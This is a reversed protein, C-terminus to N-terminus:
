WRLPFVLPFAVRGLEFVLFVFPLTERGVLRFVFLLTFRGLLVLLVLVVAEGRPPRPLELEVFTWFRLTLLPLLENVGLRPPPFEREVPVIFLPPPLERAPPAAGLPPRLYYCIILRSIFFSIKDTIASQVNTIDALAILTYILGPWPAHCPFQRGIGVM